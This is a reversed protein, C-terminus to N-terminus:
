LSSQNDISHFVVVIVYLLEELLLDYESMNDSSYMRLNQYKIQCIKSINITVVSREFIAFKQCSFISGYFISLNKSFLSKQCYKGIKAGDPLGSRCLSFLPVILITLGCNVIQRCKPQSM